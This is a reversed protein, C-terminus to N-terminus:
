GEASIEEYFEASKMENIVEERKDKPIDSFKIEGLKLKRAYNSDLIKNLDNEM